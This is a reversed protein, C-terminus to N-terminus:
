YAGKLGMETMKKLISHEAIIERLRQNPRANLHRGLIQAANIGTLLATQGTASQPLGPVDLNADLGTVYFSDAIKKPFIEHVFHSFSSKRLAFPNKASDDEGIGLGDVFFLLIHELGPIYFKADTVTM